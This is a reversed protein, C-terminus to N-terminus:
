FSGEIFKYFPSPTKTFVIFYYRGRWKKVNCVTINSIWLGKNNFGKLRIPTLTNLCKENGLFAIGKNVKSSFHELTNFFANKGDIKFPPNTIIWDVMGEHDKYDIGDQIECYEKVVFDPLSNYFAGEGRFPELVKDGEVLPLSEILKVALEIPTQHFYYVDDKM